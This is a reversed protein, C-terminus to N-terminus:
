NSDFSVESKEIIKELDEDDSDDMEDLMYTRKIEKSELYAQIALKKALKAKNKASKYMEIYVENPKKLKMSNIVLDEPLELNVELIEDNEELDEEFKKKNEELNDEENKEEVMSELVEMEKDMSDKEKNIENVFVEKKICEAEDVVDEAEDVVDEAEDVVDEAEDVVDKVKVEKLVKSELNKNKEIKILCKNFMNEDEKLLLMQILSCELHFSQSTFKLGKVEFICIMKDDQKVEDLTLVEEDENFIHLVPNNSNVKSKEIYTRFLYYKQKYSRIGSNWNYEIDEKELDDHFWNEKNKLILNKIEEEFKENWNYFESDENNFMLDCYMKKGSKKIGAKTKCKSTQIYLKEGNMKLKSFYAGGQVGMPPSLSLGEFDFDKNIQQVNM